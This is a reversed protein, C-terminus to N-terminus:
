IKNRGRIGLREVLNDEEFDYDTLYEKINISASYKRWRNDPIVCSKPAHMHLFEIENDPGTCPRYNMVLKTYIPEGHSFTGAKSNTVFKAWYSFTLLRHPNFDDPLTLFQFLQTQSNRKSVKLYSFGEPADPKSVTEVEGGDNLKWEDVYFLSNSTPIEFGSNGVFKSDM